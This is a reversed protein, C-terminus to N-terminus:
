RKLSEQKMMNMYGADIYMDMMRILIFRKLAAAMKTMHINLIILAEMMTTFHIQFCFGMGTFTSKSCAATKKVTEMMCKM